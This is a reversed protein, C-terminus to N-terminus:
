FCFNKLLVAHALAWGVLAMLASVYTQVRYFYIQTFIVKITFHATFNYNVGV